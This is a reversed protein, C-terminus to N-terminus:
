EKHCLVRILLVELCTSCGPEIYKALVPVYGGYNFLHGFFMSIESAQRTRLMTPVDVMRTAWHVEMMIQEPWIEPPSSRLMHPVVGFEFGEVDIKLLKPPHTINAQKWLEPYPSFKKTEDVSGSIGDGICYPYFRVQDTKPKRRPINNKLTCDFTHTVCRPMKKVVEEEFGWQDNSGISFIHCAEDSADHTAGSSIVSSVARLQNEGNDDKRSSREREREREPIM